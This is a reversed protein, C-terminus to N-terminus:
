LFSHIVINTNIDHFIMKDLVNKRHGVIKFGQDYNKTLEHIFKYKTTIIRATMTTAAVYITTMLTHTKILRHKFCM